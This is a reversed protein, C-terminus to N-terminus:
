GNHVDCPQLREMFFIKAELAEPSHHRPNESATPLRQRLNGHNNDVTGMMPERVGSSPYGDAPGDPNIPPGDSSKNGEDNNESVQLTKEPVLTGQTSIGDESIHVSDNAAPRREEMIDDDESLDSIGAHTNQGSSASSQHCLTDNTSQGPEGSILLRHQARATAQHIRLIEEQQKLLLKRERHASKYINHLHRIEAQEQKLNTKIELERRLVDVVKVRENKMELCKRQHELLALEAKAKELVAEGRLRLLAAQHRARLEEERLCQQAMELTFRRFMNPSGYFESIESWKSTSDTAPEAVDSADGM